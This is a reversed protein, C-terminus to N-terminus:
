ISRAGRGKVKELDRVLVAERFSSRAPTDGTSLSRVKPGDSPWGKGNRLRTESSIDTEIAPHVDNSSRNGTGSGLTAPPEEVEGQGVRLHGSPLVMM